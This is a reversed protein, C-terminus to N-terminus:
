SGSSTELVRFVLVYCGSSPEGYVIWVGEVLMLEVILQLVARSRWFCARLAQGLCLSPVYHPGSSPLLFLPSM